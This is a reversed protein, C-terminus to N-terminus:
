HRHNPIQGVGRKMKKAFAVAEDRDLFWDSSIRKRFWLVRKWRRVIWPGPDATRNTVEILYGGNDAIVITSRGVKSEEKEKM